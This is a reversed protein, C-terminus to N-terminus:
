TMGIASASACTRAANFHIKDDRWRRESFQVIRSREIRQLRVYRKTERKHSLKFSRGIENQGIWQKTGYKQREGGIDEGDTGM